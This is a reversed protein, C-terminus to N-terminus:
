YEDCILKLYDNTYPRDRHRAVQVRQWPTLTGYIQRTREELQRELSTLQAREEPKVREGRRQLAQIRKDIDALPREFELDFAMLSYREERDRDDKEEITTSSDSSGALRSTFM